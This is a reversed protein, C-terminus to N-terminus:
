KKFKKVGKRQEDTREEKRLRGLANVLDRKFNDLHEKNAASDSSDELNRLYRKLLRSM